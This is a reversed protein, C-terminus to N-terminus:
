KDVYYVGWIDIKGAGFDLSRGVVGVWTLGTEMTIDRLGKQNAEADTKLPIGGDDYFFIAEGFKLGAIQEKTFGVAEAKKVDQYAVIRYWRGEFEKWRTIELRATDGGKSASHLRIAIPNAMGAPDTSADKAPDKTEKPLVFRLSGGKEGLEIDSGVFRNFTWGTTFDIKDKSAELAKLLDASPKGEADLVSVPFDRGKMAAVDWLGGVDEGQPIQVIVEVPRWNGGIAHYKRLKIKVTSQDVRASWFMEIRNYIVVPRGAMSAADSTHYGDAFKDDTKTGTKLKEKTTARIAYVYTYDPRFGRDEFKCETVPTDNLLEWESPEPPRVPRPGNEKEFDESTGKWARRKKDWDDAKKQWKPLDDTRYRKKRDDLDRPSKRLIWYGLDAPVDKLNPANWTVVIVFDKSNAAAAVADPAALDAEKPPPPSAGYEARDLLGDKNKDKEDFDAKNTGNEYEARTVKGDDNTDLKDFEVDAASPKADYEARSLYGDKNADLTRFKIGDKFNESNAYEFTSLKDDKPDVDCDDFTGTTATAELIVRFQTPFDLVKHEDAVPAPVKGGKTVGFSEDAKKLGEAKFELPPDSPKSDNLKSNIKSIADDIRQRPGDTNGVVLAILVFVIMLVAGGIWAGLPGFKTMASETPAEAM